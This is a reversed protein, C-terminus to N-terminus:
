SFFLAIIGDHLEEQLSAQTQTLAGLEGEVIESDPLATTQDFHSCALPIFRPGTWEVCRCALSQSFVETWSYLHCGSEFGHSGGPRGANSRCDWEPQRLFLALECCRRNGLREHFENLRTSRAKGLLVNRMRQSMGERVIVKLSMRAVYTSQRRQKTM